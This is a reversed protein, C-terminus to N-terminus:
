SNRIENQQLRPEGSVSFWTCNKRNRLEVLRIVSDISFILLSSSEFLASFFVVVMVNFDFSSNEHDRRNRRTRNSTDQGKTPTKISLLIQLSTDVFQRLKYLVWEFLCRLPKHCYYFNSGILWKFSHHTQSCRKFNLSNNQSM